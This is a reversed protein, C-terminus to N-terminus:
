VKQIVRMHCVLHLLTVMALMAPPLPPTGRPKGYAKALEAEFSEDFLEHRIERLFLYFKGARKLQAAIREERESLAAPVDWHM